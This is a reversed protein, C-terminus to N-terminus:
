LLIREPNRFPFTTHNAPEIEFFELRASCIAACDLDTNVNIFFEPTATYPLSQQFLCDRACRRQADRGQDTEDESM